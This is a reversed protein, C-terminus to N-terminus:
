PGAALTPGIPRPVVHIDNERFAKQVSTLVAKKVAFQKGARAKFKGRIILTGDEVASIGQSKFPELLDGSLEPDAAIEQGITKFIKRVKEVDTDFAVRFVLKEIVWGRSFNIVKGIQGYPVSALAGRANRLSVSRVSIKEVTGKAGPTEIYEGLRFADDILFFLGSVIDKVLTQSGFGIAIGFISLGGIIPWVNVGLAILVTLGTTALLTVKVVGSILPLLTGLRSRPGEVEVLSGSHGESQAM